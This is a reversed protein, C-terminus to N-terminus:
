GLFSEIEELSLNKHLALNIGCSITKAAKEIVADIDKPTVVLDSINESLGKKIIDEKEQESLNNNKSVSVGISDMAITAADVVTPMGIAIVKIGLSKENLGERRNGVGAGPQIGTDSIQFTTSIRSINRAALADIAIIAAPKVNECIGKIISLSEIGTTGLVGPSVACVNALQENFANNMYEHMHRTVLIESAAIPGLADPTIHINGLGTVLIPGNKIDQMLASINEAIKKCVIEYEDADYRVNPSEITIYNGIPKGIAKEGKENLIKIKTVSVNGFNENKAAIGEIASTKATNKKCIEHAELALDTRINM